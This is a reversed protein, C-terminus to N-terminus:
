GGESMRRGEALARRALLYIVTALISLTIVLTVTNTPLVLVALALLGLGSALVLLCLKLSHVAVM